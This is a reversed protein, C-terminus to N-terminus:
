EHDSKGISPSLWIWNGGPPMFRVGLTAYINHVPSNNASFSASGLRHGRGAYAVCAQQYLLLGSVGANRSLMALTLNLGHKKGPRSLFWGQLKGDLMLQMCTEPHETVLNNAWLAYRETARAETCGPIHRFREHTFVALEGLAIQFQNQDAFVYELRDSSGTRKVKNLNMLFHIQTDIQTFQAATLNRLSPAQDLQSYFEVWEYPELLRTQTAKDLSFFGPDDVVGVPKGWWSTNFQHEQIM